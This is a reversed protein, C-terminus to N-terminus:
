QRNDAQHMFCRRLDLCAIDVTFGKVHILAQRVAYHSIDTSVLIVQEPNRDTTRELQKISILKDVHSVQDVGGMYGTVKPILM